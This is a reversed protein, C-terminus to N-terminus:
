KEAKTKDKEQLQKRLREIEKKMEEMRLERNVTAERFRELENVKEKLEKTRKEIKQELGENLEKIANSTKVRETNDMMSFIFGEDLDDRNIAQMIVLTPVRHGDRHVYDYEYSIRGKKVIDKYIIENNVREFEERNPYIFAMSPEDLWKELPWGLIGEAAKSVWIAKSKKIFFTAAPSGGLIAALLKRSKDTKDDEKRYRLM